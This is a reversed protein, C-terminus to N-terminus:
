FMGNAKAATEPIPQRVDWHGVIKGDELRFMDVIALGMDEPQLKVHAHLIVFDGDAFARKVNARVTPFQRKLDRFYTRFGDVGDPSRPNHQVFHSGLYAVAEDINPRNLVADYFALVTRKNADCVNEAEHAPTAGAIPTNPDTMTKREKL